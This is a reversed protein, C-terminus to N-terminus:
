FYKPLHCSPLEMMLPEQHDGPRSVPRNLLMEIAPDETQTVPVPDCGFNSAFAPLLSISDPHIRAEAPLSEEDTIPAINTKKRIVNTRFPLLRGSTKVKKKSAPKKITPKRSCAQPSLTRISDLGTEEHGATTELQLNHAQEQIVPLACATNWTEPEEVTPTYHSRDGSGSLTVEM